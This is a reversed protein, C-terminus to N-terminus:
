VGVFPDPALPATDAPIVIPGQVRADTGDTDFVTASLAPDGSGASASARAFGTGGGGTFREDGVLPLLGPGHDEWRARFTSLMLGASREPFLELAPAERDPTTAWSAGNGRKGM